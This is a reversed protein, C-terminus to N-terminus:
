LVRKANGNGNGYLCVVFPLFRPVLVPVTVRFTHQLVSPPTKGGRRGFRLSTQTKKKPLLPLPPLPTVVEWVWVGGGQFRHRRCCPWGHPWEAQNVVREERPPTEGRAARDLFTEM